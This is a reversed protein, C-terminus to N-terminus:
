DKLLKKRAQEVNSLLMGSPGDCQISLPKKLTLSENKLSISFSRPQKIALQAIHQKSNYYLGPMM